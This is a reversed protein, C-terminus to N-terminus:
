INQRLQMAEDNAPDIRLIQNLYEDAKLVRKEDFYIKAIYLKADLHSSQHRDVKIFHELAETTDGVTYCIFGLQFMMDYNSPHESIMQTLLRKPYEYEENALCIEIIKEKIVMNKKSRAIVKSFLEIALHKMEKELLIKALDISENNYRSSLSLIQLYYRAAREYDKKKMYIQTLHYRTIIDQKNISAAKQLCKEEIAPKGVKGHLLGLIRLLRSANPKHILALRIQEIATEFDGDEELERAKHFHITAEDPNNALHIVSRIKEDLAGLTLPKLLYGDIESEAVEAVIDREAEATVMIVPIDRMAKDKRIYELMQTGNMVPMNWDIIALDAISSSLVQLGEKGNEAFRLNKGINLNKLMKRITLRMSKMDDVILIAMNELNIM